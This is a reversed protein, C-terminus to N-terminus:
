RPFRLEKAFLTRGDWRRGSLTVTLSVGDDRVAVHGFQGGGPIVPGSYPGGKVGGPRDVAAAQLLPFGGTRATTYDTHRGDDFGVMHADGALMLVNRGAGRAIADAVLRREEPFGGWTDAAPGPDDIWPDPSVLVVLGYRDASALERLLWARQAAGLTSRYAGSPEGAPDRAARTDMLVFRVRGVTFAQYLASEPGALPYHPTMQRYVAMAARRSPSTRDADNGGYDHDDWVYAVPTAAYLAAQAPATLNLDYQARFRSPVDRDINAYTWDGAALAFLPRTARMADFVRGNSGGLQCSGVVFSFSAPGAPFTRLSQRRDTVRAGDVDAEYWYRTDPRLGTLSLRAVREADPRATLTTPSALDPRESVRLSVVDADDATRVRVEAGTPTVGGAWMWEVVRTDPAATLSTPHTPGWYRDYTAAAAGVVGGLVVSTVVAAALAARLTTRRHWELWLLGAPVWLAATVAAAVVPPYQVSSAYGLVVAGVAVLVAGTVHWRRALLVGAVVVALVGWQLPVEIGGGMVGSEPTRPLGHTRTLVALVAVAGATWALAARHVLRTRREDLPVAVPESATSAAARRQWLCGDCAPHLHPRELAVLAVTALGTGALAAGVVDLPWREGRWIEGFAVATALLGLALTGARRAAVRGTVAELMPPVLGATVTLLLVAPSPYSDSADAGWEPPRPRGALVALATATAAATAFTLAAVPLYTRCRRGRPVLVLLVAGAALALVPISALVWPTDLLLRGGPGASGPPHAGRLLRRLPEDAGPKAVAALVTVVTGALLVAGLVLVQRRQVATPHSLPADGAAAGPRSATHTM